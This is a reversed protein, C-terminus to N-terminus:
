LKAISHTAVGAEENLLAKSQLWPSPPATSRLPGPLFGRAQLIELDIHLLM